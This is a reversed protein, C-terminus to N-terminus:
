NNSTKLKQVMENYDEPKMMKKLDPTPLPPVTFGKLQTNLNPGQQM